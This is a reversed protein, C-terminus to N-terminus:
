TAHSKFCCKELDITERIVFDYKLCCMSDVRVDRVCTRGQFGVGNQFLKPICLTLADNFCNGGGYALLMQIFLLTQIFRFMTFNDRQNVFTPQCIVKTSVRGMRDSYINISNACM